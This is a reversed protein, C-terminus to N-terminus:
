RYIIMNNHETTIKSFCKEKQWIYQKIKCAKNILLSKTRLLIAIVMESRVNFWIIMGYRFGIMMKSKLTVIWVFGCYKEIRRIPMFQKDKLPILFIALTQFRVLCVCIHYKCIRFLPFCSSQLLLILKICPMIFSFYIFHINFIDKCFM